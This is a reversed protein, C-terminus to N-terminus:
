QGQGVLPMDGQLWEFFNEDDHTASCRCGNLLQQLPGRLEADWSIVVRGPRDVDGLPVFRLDHDREAIGAKPPLASKPHLRKLKRKQGLPSTSV